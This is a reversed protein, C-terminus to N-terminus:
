DRFSTRRILIDKLKERRALRRSLKEDDKVQKEKKAEIEAIRNM